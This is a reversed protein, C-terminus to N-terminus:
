EATTLEQFFHEITLATIAALLISAVLSASSNVQFRNLVHDSAFGVGILAGYVIWEINSNTTSRQQCHPCTYNNSITVTLLGKLNAKKKCAPCEM